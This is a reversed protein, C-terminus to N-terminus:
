AVEKFLRVYTDIVKKKAKRLLLVGQFPSFPNGTKDNMHSNMIRKIYGKEKSGQKADGHALYADFLEREIPTLDAEEIAMHLQRLEEESYLSTTQVPDFSKADGNMNVIQSACYIKTSNRTTQTRVLDSLANRVMTTMFTHYDVGRDEYFYMAWRAYDEAVDAFAEKQIVDSFSSGNFYGVIRRISKVYGMLVQAEIERIAYIAKIDESPFAHVDLLDSFLMEVFEMRSSRDDTGYFNMVCRGLAEGGKIMIKQYAIKEETTIEVHPLFSRQMTTGKGEKPSKVIGSFREDRIKHQMKKKIKM